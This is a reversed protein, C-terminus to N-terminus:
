ALWLSLGCDASTMNLAQLASATRSGMEAMRNGPNHWMGPYLYAVGDSSSNSM